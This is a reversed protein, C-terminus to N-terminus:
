FKRKLKLEEGEALVPRGTIRALQPSTQPVQPNSTTTAVTEGNGTTSAATARAIATSGPGMTRATEIGFFSKESECGVEKCKIIGFEKLMEEETPKRTSNGENMVIEEPDLDPDTWRKNWGPQNVRGQTVIAEPAVAYEGKYFNLDLHARYWSDQTLLAFGPDDILTSPYCLNETIGADNWIAGFAFDLSLAPVTSEHTVSFYSTTACNNVKESLLMRNKISSEFPASNDCIGAFLSAGIINASSPILRVFNLNNNRGQWVVDPPYEDRQCNLNPGQM